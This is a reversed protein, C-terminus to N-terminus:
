SGSDPLHIQDWDHDGKTFYWVNKLAEIRARVTPDRCVVTAQVTRVIRFGLKRLSLEFAPISTVCSVAAVSNGFIKAAHIIVSEFASTDGAAVLFDVIHGASIEEPMSRRLVFYGVCEGQRRAVFRRYQLDPSEVFRWNLYRSNRVFIAPYDHRVRDWFRDTEEGFENVEMMEVADEPLNASSERRQRWLFGNIIPSIARHAQFVDCLVRAVSQVMPHHQTRSLLYKRVSASDLHVLKAFEHTHALTVCGAREAMRRTAPAMTLTVLLSGGTAVANHIRHGLGMGRYASLIMVDVIWGAQLETGDIQVSAAQVAIQGVVEDGDVALWIPMLDGSPVQFPNNVFQWTRRDAGKWPALSGYAQDIFRDLAAWDSLQAQRVISTIPLGHTM